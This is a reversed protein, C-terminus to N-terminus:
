WHYDIEIKSELIKEIRDITDYKLHGFRQHLHLLSGMQKNSKEVSEISALVDMVSSVHERVKTELVLINKVMNVRFVIAGDSTRQRSLIKIQM